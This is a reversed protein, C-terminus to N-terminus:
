KKLELHMGCKPCSGPKDSVVEKDMPCIWTEAQAAKAAAAPKDPAAPPAKSCAALPAGFLALALALAAFRM